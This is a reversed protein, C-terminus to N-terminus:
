DVVPLIIRSPTASGIWIRNQANQCKQDPSVVNLNKEYRPYNSSALIVRVRHGKAFVMSTNGLDIEVETPQELSKGKLATRVSGLRCIGDCVLMSKGDPYVDTLRLAIDTDPCDSSAFIHATLAGTIELDDQLEESTFVVVDKRSELPRQDKAGSELFLNRGGLTPAPDTPDYRYERVGRVAPSKESLEGHITLYFPQPKSPIPWEQSTKWRNGKSPTGDFPGMVYYTVAPLEDMIAGEGKLHYAFWAQPSFDYPPVAGEKPVDFDGLKTNKPWSHTWPGILLKQKGKAGEGGHYQRSAFGDITGQLFIDYWGGYHIAPVQVQNAVKSTNVQDWFENYERQNLVFALVDPNNGHYAWWGEVQNKLVQGGNFVAQSYIDSAAVGIYQCKLSPPATPAMLLQTIGPASFGITGIKGNTFPSKALWEVSDYGDQQEGWGDSFYPMVTGDKDLRNRTDQFAVIYGEKCLAAYHQWPQAHRGSPNRMLICPRPTLDGSSPLYIDTPLETGDRMPILLTFDPTLAEEAIITSFFLCFLCLFRYVLTM